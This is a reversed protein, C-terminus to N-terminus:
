AELEDALRRSRIRIEVPQLVADLSEAAPQRDLGLGPPM